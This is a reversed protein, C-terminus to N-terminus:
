LCFLTPACVQEGVIFFIITLSCPPAVPLPIYRTSSWIVTFPLSYSIPRGASNNCLCCDLHFLFFSLFLNFSHPTCLVTGHYILGPLLIDTGVVLMEVVLNGAIIYPTGQHM